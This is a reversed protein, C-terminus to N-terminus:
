IRFYGYRTRTATLDRIRMVLPTQKPKHSIYRVSLRTLGAGLLQAAGKRRPVGPRARRARATTWDDSSKQYSM